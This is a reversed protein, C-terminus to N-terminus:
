IQQLSFYDIFLLFVITPIKRYICQGLHFLCGVIIVNDGFVHRAANQFGIEFDCMISTPNIDPRLGRIATLVNVYDIERKRQM